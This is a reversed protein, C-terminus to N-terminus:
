AHGDVRVVFRPDMVAEVGRESAKFRAVIDQNFDAESNQPAQVVTIPWNEMYAFAKALEGLIWVTKANAASKGLATQLRAYLLTSVVSTYGMMPAKAVTEITGTATLHRVETANLVRNITHKLFPTGVIQMGGILIPEGTNPDTMGAFLLEAQEVTTWDGMAYTAGALLNIWPTAAQYTNYSTGRWKYNNTAGIVLDIIRKEKNLGLSEGVQNAHQLIRGTLDFFIAEKTVPVILGRKTTVPTEVYDEGFGVHPFPMGEPVIQAKDGLNQLGPIKEGNLRTPVNPILSSFIFNENQYGEMVKNIVLQGTINSFATSDVAESAELVAVGGGQRPDMTRVWERGDPVLSEAMERLSFDEAKLEGKNLHEAIKKCTKKAGLTRYMQGLERHNMLVM